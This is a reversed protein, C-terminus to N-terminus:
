AEVLELEQILVKVTEPDLDFLGNGCCKTAFQEKYSEATEKTLFVQASSYQHSGEM